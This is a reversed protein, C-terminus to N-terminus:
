EVITIEVRRAEAPTLDTTTSNDPKVLETRDVAIGLAVLAAQVNQARNKSLEANIAANGTPDNYGSINVKANPNKDLYTRIEASVTEFDPTVVSSGSDFYVTLLPKGDREGATVGSGEPAEPQPTATPEPEPAPSATATPTPTPAEKPALITNGAWVSVLAAFIIAGLAVLGAVCGLGLIGGDDGAAARHGNSGSPRIPSHKRSVPSAAPSMATAITTDATAAAAGTAAAGAAAAPAPGAAESADQGTAPQATAPASDAAEADEAGTAAAVATAAAAATGAGSSATGGFTGFMGFHKTLLYYVSVRNQDGGGM